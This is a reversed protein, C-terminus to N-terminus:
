PPYTQTTAMNEMTSSSSDWCGKDLIVWNHLYIYWQNTTQFMQKNKCINPIDLDWSFYKESPYPEVVLWGTIYTFIGAGHLM